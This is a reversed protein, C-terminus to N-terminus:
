DEDMFRCALLALSEQLVSKFKFIGSDMERELETETGEILRSASGFDLEEGFRLILLLRERPTLSSTAWDIAEAACIFCEGTEETIDIGELWAWDVQQVEM